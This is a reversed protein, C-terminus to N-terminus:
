AVTKPAKFVFGDQEVHGKSITGDLRIGSPPYINFFIDTLGDKAAAKEAIDGAKDFIEFENAEVTIVRRVRKSGLNGRVVVRFSLTEVQSM